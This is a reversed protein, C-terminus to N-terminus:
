EPAVDAAVEQEAGVVSVDRAPVTKIDADFGAGITIKYASPLTDVAARFALVTGTYVKKDKRGFEFTVETGAPLGTVEIAERAASLKQSEAFELEATSLKGELDALKIQLAEISKKLATIQKTSM